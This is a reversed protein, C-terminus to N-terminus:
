GSSRLRRSPCLGGPDPLPSAAASVRLKVVPCSPFNWRPGINYLLKRLYNKYCQDTNTFMCVATIKLGVRELTLVPFVLQPPLSLVTPRRM